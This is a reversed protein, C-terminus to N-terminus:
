CPGSERTSATLVVNPPGQEGRPLQMSNDLPVRGNHGSDQGLLGLFYPPNKPRSVSQRPHYRSLILGSM